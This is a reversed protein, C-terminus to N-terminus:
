LIEGSEPDSYSVLRVAVTRSGGKDRYNLSIHQDKIIYKSHSCDFGLVVEYRANDKAGGKKKGKLPNRGAGKLVEKFVTITTSDFVEM